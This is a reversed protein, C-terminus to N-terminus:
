GRPARWGAEGASGGPRAGGGSVGPAPSAPFPGRVGIRSGLQQWIENRARDLNILPDDFLLHVGYGDTLVLILEAVAPADCSTFEGTAVGAEIAEVFWRHVDRYLRVTLDRSDADRAARPWLEAWLLCDRRTEAGIPLCAEIMRALKWTLPREAPPVADYEERGSHEFSYRLAEAFLRERNEFHYHLLATSVGAREAVMRMRVKEFGIEAIVDCAAVLIQQRTEAAKDATRGTARDAAEVTEVPKVPKVAGAPRGAKGTFKPPITM